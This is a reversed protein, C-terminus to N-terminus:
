KCETTKNEEWLAAGNGLQGTSTENLSSGYGNNDEETNGKM